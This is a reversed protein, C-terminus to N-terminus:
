RLLSSPPPRRARWSAISFGTGGVLALLGAGIVVQLPLSQYDHTFKSGDTRLFECTFQPPIFRTQAGTSSRGRVMCFDEGARGWAIPFLIAVVFVVWIIGAALWALPQRWRLQQGAM